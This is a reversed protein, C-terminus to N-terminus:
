RIYIYISKLVSILFFTIKAYFPVVKLTFNFKDIINSSSKKNFFFNSFNKFNVIKINKKKNNLYVISKLSLLNIYGNKKARLSFEDDGGYHPFTIHDYNGIKKFIEIPHLLCRGTFIDVEVFNENPLNKIKKGQFVHETVNM